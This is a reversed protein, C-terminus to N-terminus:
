HSESSGALFKAYSHEELFECECLKERELIFAQGAAGVATSRAAPTKNKNTRLDPSVM